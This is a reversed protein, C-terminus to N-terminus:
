DGEGRKNSRVSQSEDMGRPDTGASTRRSRGPRPHWFSKFEVEDNELSQRYRRSVARLQEQYSKPEATGDCVVSKAFRECLLKLITRRARNKLMLPFPGSPDASFDNARLVRTAEIVSLDVLHRFPEQLDSALAAHGMRPEHLSGLSELMGERRIWFVCWRHLVTFGMNLLVNVPDSADPAVRRAFTFDNALLEGFRGYWIAAAGGEVGLLSSHSEARYASQVLEFLRPAMPTSKQFMRQALVAYNHIKSAVLERAIKLRLATDEILEVQRRATAANVTAEETHLEMEVRGNDHMVVIPIGQSALSRIARWHVETTNACVVERLNKTSVRLTPKSARSTIELQDSVWDVHDYGDGVLLTTSQHWPRVDSEGPLSHSSKEPDTRLIPKWAVDHIAQPEESRSCSWDQTALEFRYGLFDFGDQFDVLATKKVNLELRLSDAEQRARSGIADAEERTRCLILFDDAYRILRCQMSQVVEDFRDLFLNALIPSLPSGTPLGVNSGPMASRVTQMLWDVTIPDALYAHLRRELLAHDVQDFFRTFDSRIAWAFGEQFASRIRATAQQRGLGRRYAIASSELFGDIGPAIGDLMIRQIARDRKSPISLERRSGDPKPISVRFTPEPRYTGSRIAEMASSLEGSELAFEEAIRSVDAQDIAHDLLAQSRQIAFPDPGLEMIRYEGFGFRTNEGVRAYQGLVLLFKQLESLHALQVKGVCGGLTKRDKTSGYGVDLWVLENQTTEVRSEVAETDLEPIGDLGLQRVRKALRRLLLEGHFYREDFYSHGEVCQRKPRLSRLPSRFHLTVISHSQLRDNESSYHEPRICTLQGATSVAKGAVVDFLSDLSFDRLWQRASPQRGLRKLGDIVALASQRVSYENSAFFTLGLNVPSRPSARTLAQDPASLMVGDPMAPAAGCVLHHADCLMAYFMAAHHVPLSVPRKVKLALQVRAIAWSPARTALTM